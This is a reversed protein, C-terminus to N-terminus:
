ESLDIFNKKDYNHIEGSDDSINYYMDCVERGMFLQNTQYTKGITLPLVCCEDQCKNLRHIPSNYYPGKNNVCRVIM